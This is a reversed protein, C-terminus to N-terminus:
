PSPLVPTESPVPPATTLPPVATLAPLASPIRYVQIIARALEVLHNREGPFYQRNLESLSKQANGPEVPIGMEVLLLDQPVQYVRSIYEITMWGRVMEVAPAEGPRFHLQRVQRFAHAARLGFLIVLGIGALILILLLRSERNPPSTPHSSEKM